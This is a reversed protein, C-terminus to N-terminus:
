IPVKISKKYQSLKEFFFNANTYHNLKSINKFFSLFNKEKSQNIIIYIYIHTYELSKKRLM